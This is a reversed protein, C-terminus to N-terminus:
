IFAGVLTARALTAKVARAAQLPPAPAPLLTMSRPSGHSQQQQMHCTMGNWRHLICAVAACGRSFLRVEDLQSGERLLRRASGVCTNVMGESCLLSTCLLLM